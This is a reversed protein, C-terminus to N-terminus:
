SVIDATYFQYYRNENKSHFDRETIHLYELLNRNTPCRFESSEFKPLIRIVVKGNIIIEFVGRSKGGEFYNNGHDFEISYNTKM